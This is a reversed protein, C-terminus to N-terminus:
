SFGLKGPARSVISDV